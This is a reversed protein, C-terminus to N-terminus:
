RRADSLLQTEMAPEWTALAEDQAEGDMSDGRAAARLCDRLLDVGMQFLAGRWLDSATWEPHVHCWDQALIPGADALEPGSDLRYVTGGTIPERMHIAWKIADKGRHRPLLSPHYGWTGFTPHRAAERPIWDHNHVSLLVDLDVGEAEGVDAAPSTGGTALSEAAGLLKEDDTWVWRLDAGESVAMRAVAVALSHGGILGVKM